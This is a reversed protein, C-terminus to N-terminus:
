AQAAAPRTRTKAFRCIFESGQGPESRIILHAEHRRLVHKVIALGLGTGGAELSRHKDVRYFRETLRNLHQFEIGPGNDRVIVELSVPTDSARVEIRGGEPSYKVANMVLNSFASYLETESGLIDTGTDLTLLVEQRRGEAVVRADRVVRGLLDQLNVAEGLDPREDNELRSLFLLDRVLHDMREGQRDMEEIIDRRSAEPLNEATMLTELYGRLVTLPTKLEHSLNAVFDRRMQELVALRTIDRVIVLHDDRAFGTILIQLMRDAARPSEMTLPESFDGASFYQQFAPARVLNIIHQGKDQPDRFGFMETAADNWWELSRESDLMIVGDRLASLSERVRHVIKRLRKRSKKQKKQLAYIGDFIDGWLGFSEPPDSGGRGDLWRHLRVLQWTSWGIYGALGLFLMTLAADFPAGLIMLGLLALILQTIGERWHRRM